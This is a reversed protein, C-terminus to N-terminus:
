KAISWQADNVAAHLAIQWPFLGLESTGNRPKGRRPRKPTSATRPVFSREMTSRMRPSHEQRGARSYPSCPGRDGHIRSRGATSRELEPAHYRSCYILPPCRRSHKQPMCTPRSSRSVRSRQVADSEAAQASSGSRSGGRVPCLELREVEGLRVQVHAAQLGRAEVRLRARAAGARVPRWVM